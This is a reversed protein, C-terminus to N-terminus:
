LKFKDDFPSEQDKDSMILQVPIDLGAFIDDNEVDDEDMLSGIQPAGTSSTGTTVTEKENDKEEITDGLMTPKVEIARAKMVTAGALTNAPMAPVPPVSPAKRPETLSRGPAVVGELGIMVEGEDDDEDAETIYTSQLGLQQNKGIRISRANARAAPVANTAEYVYASGDSTGSAFSQRVMSKTDGPQDGINVLTPRAQIATMMASSVYAQSERYAETNVSDRIGYASSQRSQRLLEEPTFSYEWPVDPIPPAGSGVTGGASSSRSPDSRSTVGPVYAIPIVNSARSFASSAMSAFTATSFRGSAGDGTAGDGNGRQLRGPPGGEALDGEGYVPIWEKEERARAARKSFWFFWIIFGFIAAAAVGGM